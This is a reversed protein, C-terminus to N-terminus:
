FDLGVVAGPVKKLKCYDCFDLLTRSNYGIFRGKIYANQDESILSNLVKQLREAYINSLIRYDLNTLSRPRFNSLQKKGGKKFILTIVSHNMTSPLSQKDMAQSLM